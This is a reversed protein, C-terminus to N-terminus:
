VQQQDKCLTWRKGCQATEGFILPVQWQRVVVVTFSFRIATACAARLYSENGVSALSDVHAFGYLKM